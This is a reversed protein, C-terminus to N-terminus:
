LLVSNWNQHQARFYRSSLARCEPPPFPLPGLFPLFAGPLGQTGRAGQPSSARWSRALNFTGMIVPPRSCGRAATRGSAYSFDCPKKPLM